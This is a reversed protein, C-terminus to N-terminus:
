IEKRKQLIAAAADCPSVESRAVEISPYVKVKSDPQLVYVQNSQIVAFLTDDVLRYEVRRYFGDVADFSLIQIVFSGCDAYGGDELQEKGTREPLGALLILSLILGMLLNM